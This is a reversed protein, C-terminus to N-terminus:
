RELQFRIAESRRDKSPEPDEGLYFDIQLSLDTSDYIAYWLTREPVAKDAMARVCLNAERIHRLSREMPAAAIERDLRRFRQYSNGDLTAPISGATPHPHVPHNTVWQVEGEGETLYRESLDASYEWVFSDGEADAIIYHCPLLWYYFAVSELAERAEETNACTELLFRVIEVESLGPRWNGTPQRTGTPDNTLIAVTLGESNIGDLAGGLLEYSCLTLSPYGRDPYVEMVYVDGTTRPNAPSPAEGTWTGTTFDYNRSLIGHGQANFEPPYYVVSCGFAPPFNYPLISPDGELGQKDFYARAGQTRAFHSPYKQQYFSLRKAVDKGSAPAFGHREVAIEALRHGIDVQSGRLQLHRVTVADDQGGAVIRETSELATASEQACAGGLCLGFVLLFRLPQQIANM